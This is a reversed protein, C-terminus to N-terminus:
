ADARRQIDTGGEVLTEIPRGFVLDVQWYCDPVKVQYDRSRGTPLRDTTVLDYLYQPRSTEWKNSQAEYSCSPSARRRARGGLGQAQRHSHGDAADFAVVEVDAPDSESLDSLRELSPM